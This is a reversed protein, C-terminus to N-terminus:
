STVPTDTVNVAVSASTADTVLVPSTVAEFDPVAPIRMLAPSRLWRTGTVTVATELAITTVGLGPTTAWFAVSCSFATTFSRLPRGIGPAGTANWDAAGSIAMTEGVPSTVGSPGAPCAGMMMVEPDREVVTGTATVGTAVESSTAGLGVVMSLPPTICSATVTFSRAPAAIVPMTGANWDLLVPSAVTLLM